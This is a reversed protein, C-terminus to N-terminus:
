LDRKRSQKLRKRRKRRKRRTRSAKLGTSRAHPTASDSLEANNIEKNAWEKFPKVRNPVRRFPMILGRETCLM